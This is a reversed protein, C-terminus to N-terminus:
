FVDREIINMFSKDLIDRVENIYTTSLYYKLDEVNDFPSVSLIQYNNGFYDDNHITTNDNTDNVELSVADIPIDMKNSYFPTAYGIYKYEYGKEDIFHLYWEIVGSMNDYGLEYGVNNDVIMPINSKIKKDKKIIELLIDIGVNFYMYYDRSIDYNSKKALEYGSLNTMKSATQFGVRDILQKLILEIKNESIIIKM